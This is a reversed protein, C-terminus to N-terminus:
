PRTTFTYELPDCPVGGDASQFNVASVSNIGLNYQHDPKLAVPLVCTYDDIWYPNNGTGAPYHDGAGTWSYGRTMPVDFTVRIEELNPAVETARNPPILSVVKPKTLRAKVAESVGQTTFYLVSQAAARGDTGRFAQNYANMELRYFHGAELKV